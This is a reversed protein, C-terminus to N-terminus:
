HIASSEEDALEVGDDLGGIVVFDYLQCLVKFTCPRPIVSLPISRRSKWILWSITFWYAERADDDGELDPGFPVQVDNLVTAKVVHRLFWGVAERAEPSIVDALQSRILEARSGRIEVPESKTWASVPAAQIVASGDPGRPDIDKGNLDLERDEVWGDGFTYIGVFDRDRNIGTVCMRSGRSWKTKRVWVPFTGGEAQVIQAITRLNSARPAFSRSM